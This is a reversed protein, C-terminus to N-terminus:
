GRRYGEELLQQERRAAEYQHGIEQRARLKELVAVEQEARALMDRRKEIEQGIQQLQMQLQQRRVSLVLEFRHSNVLQDVHVPGPAAAQRAVAQTEAMQQAIEDLQRHLAREAQLAEAFRRRAEDRVQQRLRLLTDLRFQFKKM